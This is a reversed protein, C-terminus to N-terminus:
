INERRDWWPNSKWTRREVTADRFREDLQAVAVRLKHARRGGNHMLAELRDRADMGPEHCCPWDMPVDVGDPIPQEFIEVYARWRDLYRLAAGDKRPKRPRHPNM